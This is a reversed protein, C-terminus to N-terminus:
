FKQKLVIRRNCRPCKLDGSSKASELEPTWIIHNGCLPCLTDKKPM